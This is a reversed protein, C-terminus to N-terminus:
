LFVDHYQGWGKNEHQAIQPELKQKKSLMEPPSPHGRKIATTSTFQVDKGDIHPDTFSRLFDPLPSKYVRRTKEFLQDM